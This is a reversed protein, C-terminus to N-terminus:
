EFKNVIDNLLRKQDERKLREILVDLEHGGKMFEDLNHMTGLRGELRHDSM